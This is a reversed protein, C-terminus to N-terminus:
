PGGPPSTDRSVVSVVRQHRHHAELRTSPSRWRTVPGARQGTSTGVLGPTISSTGPTSISTTSGVSSTPPPPTRGAAGATVPHGVGARDGGLHDGGDQHHLGEALLACARVCQSTRRELCGRAAPAGATRASIIAKATISRVKPATSHAQVLCLARHQAALERGPMQALGHSRASSTAAHRHQRLDPRGHRLRRRWQAGSPAAPWLARRHLIQRQAPQRPLPPPCSGARRPKGSGDRGSWGGSAPMSRSIRGRRSSRAPGSRTPLSRQQQLQQTKATSALADLDVADVHASRADPGLQARTGAETGCSLVIKGASAISFM